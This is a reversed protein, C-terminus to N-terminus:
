TLFYSRIKAEIKLQERIHYGRKDMNSIKFIETKTKNQILDKITIISSFTEFGIKKSADSISLLSVGEKSIFTLQKLYQLHYTKKYVSAVMCICAPGCDMQDHQPTFKLM